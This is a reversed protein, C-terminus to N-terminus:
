STNKYAAAVCLQVYKDSQLVRSVMGVLLEYLITGYSWWDITKTVKQFSYVEPALHMFRKKIYVNNVDRISCMYTLVLDGCDDIM